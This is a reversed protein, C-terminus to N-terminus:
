QMEAEGTTAGGNNWDTISSTISLGTLNVTIEYTYVRGYEFKINGTIPNDDKDKLNKSILTGGNALTVKIFSQDLEQPIIIASGELKGTAAEFMKIATADGAPEMDDNTENYSYTPKVDQLEVLAGNLDPMGAGSKLKVTVKSLMHNFTLNVANSTRAVNKKQAVMLDSKKYKADLRQDTEITFSIVDGESDTGYNGVTSCPYTATINVGKGSTPFYPQKGEPPTMSGDGGAKYVLPQEYVTTAEGDTDESINVDIMEGSDFQTSQVDTAARTGSQQVTLGSTLRIEVPANLNDLNEDNSCAALALTAAAFLLYKKM